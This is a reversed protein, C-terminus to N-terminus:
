SANHLHFVVWLVIYIVPQHILYIFLSHRGMWAAARCNDKQLWRKAPNQVYVETDTGMLVFYAFYGILFLFIWPIVSFYDTSFFGQETLGWFTTFLNRYLIDPLNAIKVGFFGVFRDNVSYTFAFLLFNVILACVAYMRTLRKRLIRNLSGVLIMCTGLLTLVGFIIPQEPMVLLTVVTVLVGGGFVTVGHKVPGSSLPICFGALLIFTWCISQQWVFAWRSQYWMWNVEYIYVMDWIAHYIIMSILCLGRIIDIQPYRTKVKEKMGM